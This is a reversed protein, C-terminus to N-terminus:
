IAAFNEHIRPSYTRWLMYPIGLATLGAWIIWIHIGIKALSFYKDALIFLALTWLSITLVVLLSKIFEQARLRALARDAYSRLQERASYASPPAGVTAVSDM